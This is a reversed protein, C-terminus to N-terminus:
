KSIYCCFELVNPLLTLRSEKAGNSFIVFRRFDLLMRGDLEKNILAYFQEITKHAKVFM